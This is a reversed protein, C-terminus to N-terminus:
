YFLVDEFIDLGEEEKYTSSVTAHLGMWLGSVLNTENIEGM